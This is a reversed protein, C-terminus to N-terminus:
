LQWLDAAVDGDAGPDAPDDALSFRVTSEPTFGSATITVLEGPAYDAKDTIVSAAEQFLSPRAYGWQASDAILENWPLWQQKWNTIPNIRKSGKNGDPQSKGVISIRQPLSCAGANREAALRSAVPVTRHDVPRLAFM